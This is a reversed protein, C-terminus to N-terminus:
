SSALPEPQGYGHPDVPLIYGAFGETLHGAHQGHISVPSQNREGGVHLFPLRNQNLVPVGPLLLFAPNYVDTGFLVALPCHADCERM